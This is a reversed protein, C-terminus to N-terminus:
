FSTHAPVSVVIDDTIIGGYPNFWDNWKWGSNLLEAVGALCARNAANVRQPSLWIDM